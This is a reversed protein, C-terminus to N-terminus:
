FFRPTVVLIARATSTSANAITHPVNSKMHISDGPRLVHEVGELGYVLEGELVYLFEEGQHGYPDELSETPEVVLVMPELILEPSRGSLLVYTRGGMAVQTGDTDHGRAVYIPVAPRGALNNTLLAAVNTGLAEAVRKLSTLAPTSLGREIQSLFGTSLGTRESM